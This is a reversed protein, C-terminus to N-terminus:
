RDREPVAVKVVPGPLSLPTPTTFKLTDDTSVDRHENNDCALLTDRRSSPSRWAHFLTTWPSQCNPLPPVSCWEDAGMGLQGYYNTGVAFCRRGTIFFSSVDNSVVRDVRRKVDDPLNVPTLTTVSRETSWVGCQTDINNGCAMLGGETWVFPIYGNALWRTVGKSGPIPTPSTKDFTNGIGLQGETNEGCALWGSATRFFSASDALSVGLVDEDFPARLPLRVIPHYGRAM